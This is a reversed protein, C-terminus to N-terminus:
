NVNTVMLIIIKRKNEIPM